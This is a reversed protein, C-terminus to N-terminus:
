LLALLVAAGLAPRLLAALLTRLLALSARLLLARLLAALRSRRRLLRPCLRALAPRRHDIHAGAGRLHLKVAVVLFVVRKGLCLHAVAIRARLLLLQRLAACLATRALRGHGALLLLVRLHAPELQLALAALLQLNGDRVLEGDALQGRAQM